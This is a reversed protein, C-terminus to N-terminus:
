DGGKETPPDSWDIAHGCNCYPYNEKFNGEIEYCITRGCVSCILVGDTINGEYDKANEISPKKPMQKELAKIAMEFAENLGGWSNDAYSKIKEIAEQNKM